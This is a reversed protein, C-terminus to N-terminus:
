KAVKIFKELAALTAPSIEFTAPLEVPNVIVDNEQAVLEGYEEAFKPWKEDGPVVIMQTTNDPNPKGYTKVLGDRVQEVPVLFENLKQVLKLLALSTKVPFKQRILEQLPDKANLLEANTLKM